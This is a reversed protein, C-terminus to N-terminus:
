GSKEAPLEATWDRFRNDLPFASYGAVIVHLVVAAILLAGNLWPSEFYAIEVAIPEDVFPWLPRILQRPDAAIVDAFLHSLGGLAFGGAVFLYLTGKRVFERESLRWWRQLMPRFVAVVVLGAIAAVGVVFVVTHLVGHHEVPLGLDGLHLDLDPLPSSALVFAVFAVSTRGDWLIWAPLAFLLGMAVHGLLTVM